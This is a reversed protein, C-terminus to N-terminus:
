VEMIEFATHSLSRILYGTDVIGSRSGDTYEVYYGSGSTYVGDDCLMCAPRWSRPGSRIVAGPGANRLEESVEDEFLGSFRATKM